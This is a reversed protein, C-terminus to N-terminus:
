VERRRALEPLLWGIEVAWDGGRWPAPSWRESSVLVPGGLRLLDRQRLDYRWAGPVPLGRTGDRSSGSGSPAFSWRGVSLIETLASRFTDLFLVAGDPVRVETAVGSAPRVAVVVSLGHRSERTRRVWHPSPRPPLAPDDPSWLYLDRCDREALWSGLSQHSGIEVMLALRPSWWRNGEMSVPSVPLLFPDTEGADRLSQVLPDYRDLDGAPAPIILPAGRIAERHFALLTSLVAVRNAEDGDQGLLHSLPVIAANQGLAEDLLAGDSGSGPGRGPQVVEIRHTPIGPDPHGGSRSSADVAVGPALKAPEVKGTRGRDSQPPDRRPSVFPDLIIPQGELRRSGGRPTGDESPSGNPSGHVGAGGSDPSGREGDESNGAGAAPAGGVAAPREREPASRSARALEARSRLLLTILGARLSELRAKTDAPGPEAEYLIANGAAAVSMGRRLVLHRIRLLMRVQAASWVRHGAENRRSRILPLSQEWYRLVHAKVGLLRLVEQVEYSRRGLGGSGSDGIM